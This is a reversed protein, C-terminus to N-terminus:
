GSKIRSGKAVVTIGSKSITCGNNRDKEADYGISAGAEIISEKDIIAKRIRVAPEIIVDDLIISEEVTANREVIVNPSLISRWVRGGSIIVGNCLISEFISGGMVCKAPPLSRQYGRIPWKEGYLNFVPNIDVLDMSAEYYADITGVDRWYSSDRTRETLMKQRRGEGVEVVYDEIKNEHYYDYAYISYDSSLMAPIVDQGFDDLDGELIRMLSDAKFIYIGMSSFAYEPADPIVKPIMPKEEFGILKYDQDVELVGLTGAAEEKKFRISSISLDANKTKHYNLMKLYDMKYVHDGSLILVYKIDKETILDLNQRIADATGQYWEPGVKQQAPVCYIYDGMKSSSIDWGEQIHRILSTSRYQMLVFIQSIGSNICSSLTFDILRFKGAFPVAPKTRHRTLPLLREGVGGALILTLLKDVMKVRWQGVSDTNDHYHRYGFHGYHNLNKVMNPM